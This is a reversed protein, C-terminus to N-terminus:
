KWLPQIPNLHICWSWGFGRFKSGSCPVFIRFFKYLNITIVYYISSFILKWCSVDLEAVRIRKLELVFSTVCSWSSRVREAWVGWRRVCVVCKIWSEATKGRQQRIEFQSILLNVSSTMLAKGKRKGWEVRKSVAIFQMKTVAMQRIETCYIIRLQGINPFNFVDFDLGGNREQQPFWCTMHSRIQPTLSHHLLRYLVALSSTCERFIVQSLCGSMLRTSTIPWPYCRTNSLPLHRSTQLRSWTQFGEDRFYKVPPKKILM